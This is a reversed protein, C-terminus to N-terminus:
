LSADCQLSWTLVEERRKGVDLSTAPIARGFLSGSVIATDHSRIDGCEGRQGLVWCSAGARTPVPVWGLAGQAKGKSSRSKGSEAAPPKPSSSGRKGKRTAAVHGAHM